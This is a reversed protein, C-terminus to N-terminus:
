SLSNILKRTQEIQISLSYNNEVFDRYDEAFYENNCIMEVAEDITNFLYNEPWIEKAYLFNHIVPKIGKLMGEAIFYGFSEHITTALIYSKDELWENIDHQWGDFFINNELGLESIQYDWYKKILLDNFDGAIHLEYRSDKSILKKMIQLMFFPNKRYIMAGVFAIKYGKNERFTYKNIDVGNKITEIAVKEKIDPLQDELLKVLHDTVVILKDVNMWNVKQPNNTFVEYRHVRSIIKKKKALGHNSGYALLDDCWEFWCIDAWKMGEDIQSINTVIIKRVTYVKSLEHIIDNLFKDGNKISFFVIKSNNHNDNLQTSDFLNSLQETLNKREFKEVNTNAEYHAKEKNLWKKYEMLISQEIGEVDNFDVNYGRNTEEILQHVVGDTPALSLISKNLRLYEFIKGPYTAKNKEGPGVILLLLDSNASKQLSVQHPVYGFFEVIQGLGLESAFNIWKEDNNTWSFYVKIKNKDIRGNQILNNLAKMFTVPTRIGYLLGNHIITFKENRSKTFHIEKFDDEDYGNTITTIIGDDLNFTNQYNEKSKPTVTVVKDATNVIRKELEFAMKYYLSNKDPDAYPNNTWEDRFDAIWPKQFEDKLHYGIVHDSYPGSTTYILDIESVDIFQHIEKLVKNAWFIYQDPIQIAELNALTFTRYSTFLDKNVKMKEIISHIESVITSDLKNDEDIRIVRTGHPIESLLSEDILPYNTKGATVVIPEWGFSSLYKVFKLTRQVGSGGIPPFIHAIILVKKNEVTKMETSTTPQKALLDSLIGDIEVKQLEDISNEKALKFYKIAEELNNNIQFLTALNFFTDSNYNDIHIADKLVKEALELKGEQIYIISKAQYIEVDGQIIDEYQSILLEAEKLKNLNIYEQIQKKINKKYIELENQGSMDKAGEAVYNRLVNILWVIDM